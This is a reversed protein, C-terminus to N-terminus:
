KIGDKPRVRMAEADLEGDSLWIQLVDGPHVGGVGSLIGHPGRVVAYGRDLVAAPNLARLSADLAAFRSSQRAFSANLANKMRKERRWHKYLLYAIVLLLCIIIVVYVNM